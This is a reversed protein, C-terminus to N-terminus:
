QSQLLVVATQQPELRLAFEGASALLPQKTLPLSATFKRLGLAASDVKLRAEVPQLSPNHVVLYIRQGQGFRELRLHAPEVWAYTLPEWGAAALERLLGAYRTM